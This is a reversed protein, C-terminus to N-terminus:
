MAVFGIDLKINDHIVPIPHQRKFDIGKKDLEYCLIEEYVKEFLGPGYQKHIHFCINLVDTAILNEQQM